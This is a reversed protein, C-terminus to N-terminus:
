GAPPVAESSIEAQAEAPLVVLSKVIQDWLDEDFLHRPAGYRFGFKPLGPTEVILERQRFVTPRLPTGLVSEGGEDEYVLDFSVADSAGAVEVEKSSGITAEPLGAELQMRLVKERLPLAGVPERELFGMFVPPPVSQGIFPIGVEMAAQPAARQDEPRPQWEAPLAVRFGPGRRLVWGSPVEAKNTPAVTAEPVPQRASETASQCGTLVLPVLALAATVGVLRRGPVARSATSGDMTM